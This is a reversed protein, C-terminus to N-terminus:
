KVEGQPQNWLKLIRQQSLPVKNPGKPMPNRTRTVAAVLTGVPVSPEYEGSDNFIQVGTNEEAKTGTHCSACHQSFIGAVQALTIKETTVKLKLKPPANLKLKAPASPSVIQALKADLADLRRTLEDNGEAAQKTAREFASPSITTVAPYAPAALNIYATTPVVVPVIVTETRVYNAHHSHGYTGYQQASAAVTLAMFLIVASCFVKLM